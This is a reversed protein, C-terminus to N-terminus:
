ILFYFFLGTFEPQRDPGVWKPLPLWRVSASHGKKGISRNRHFVGTLSYRYRNQNFREPLVPKPGNGPRDVEM